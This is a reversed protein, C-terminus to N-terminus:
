APRERGSLFSARRPQPAAPACTLAVADGCDTSRHLRKAIDEKSEVVIKGSRPQWHPACLDARLEPDPPLCIGDGTNPDLAERLRWFCEARVNAFGLQGSRDRGDTGEGFNVGRTASFTKRLSDYASAGVGIVDVHIPVASGPNARVVLGAVSEGDPTSKGPHKELPGFWHGYCRALVTQDAGGRAVDLLTLGDELRGAALRGLLEPDGVDLERRQARHM